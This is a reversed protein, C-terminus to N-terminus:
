MFCLAWLFSVTYPKSADMERVIKDFWRHGSRTGKGELIKDLGFYDLFTIMNKFEGLKALVTMINGQVDRPAREYEDDSVRYLVNGMQVNGWSMSDVGEAGEGAEFLILQESPGLAFKFGCPNAGSHKHLLLSGQSEIKSPCENGSKFVYVNPDDGNMNELSLKWDNLDQDQGGLNKLQIFEKQGPLPEALVASIVVDAPTEKFKQSKEM